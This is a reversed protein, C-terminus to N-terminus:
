ATDRSLSRGCRIEAIVWVHTVARIIAMPEFIVLKGKGV